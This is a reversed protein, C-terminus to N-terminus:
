LAGEAADVAAKIATYTESSKIQAKLRDSGKDIAALYLKCAALLGQSASHLRANDCSRVEIDLVKLIKELSDSGISVRGALYDYISQDLVGSQREVDKISLGLKRVREKITNRISM